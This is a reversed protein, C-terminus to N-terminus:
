SFDTDIAEQPKERKKQDFISLLVGPLHFLKIYSKEGKDILIGLKNWSVIDVGKSDKYSERICIDRIAM